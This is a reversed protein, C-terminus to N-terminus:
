RRLSRVKEDLEKFSDPDRHLGAIRAMNCLLGLLNWRAHDLDELSSLLLLGQINTLSSMRFLGCESLVLQGYSKWRKVAKLAGPQGSSSVLPLLESSANLSRAAIAVM